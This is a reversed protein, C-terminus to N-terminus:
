KQQNKTLEKKLEFIHQKLQLNEDEFSKNKKIIAVLDLDQDMLLNYDEMNQSKM